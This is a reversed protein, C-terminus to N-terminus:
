GLVAIKRGLHRIERESREFGLKMESRTELIEALAREWIPRTTPANTELTTLRADISSVRTDISGVRTDISGVRALLVDLKEATSLNRTADDSM